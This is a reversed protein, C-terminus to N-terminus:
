EGHGGCDPLDRHKMAEKVGKFAREKARDDLEWMERNIYTLLFLLEAAAHALHHCGSELDLEEGRWWAWCHRMAAGFIRGFKIGTEWNRDEYHNAGYTLVKGVEELAAAPFLDFRIKGSDDKNGQKPIEKSLQVMDETNSKTIYPAVKKYYEIAGVMLLAYGQEVAYDLVKITKDFDNESLYLDKIAAYNFPYCAVLADLREKEDLHLSM